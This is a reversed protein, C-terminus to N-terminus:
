RHAGASKASRSRAPAPVAHPRRGMRPLTEYEGTCLVAFFIGLSILVGFVMQMVLHSQHMNAWAAWTGVPFTVSLLLIKSFM